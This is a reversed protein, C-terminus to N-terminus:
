LALGTESKSLSFHRKPARRINDVFQPMDPLEDLISELKITMANSADINHAMKTGRKPFPHTFKISSQDLAKYVVIKSGSVPYGRIIM